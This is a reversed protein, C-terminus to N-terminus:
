RHHREQSQRVMSSYGLAVRTGNSQRNRGGPRGVTHMCRLSPVHRSTAKSIATQVIGHVSAHMHQLLSTHPAPVCISTLGGRSLNVRLRLDCPFCALVYEVLKPKPSSPHGGFLTARSSPSLSTQSSSSRPFKPCTSTQLCCTIMTTVLTLSSRRCTFGGVMSYVHGSRGVISLFAHFICCCLPSAARITANPM